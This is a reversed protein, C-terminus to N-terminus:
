DALGAAETALTTMGLRVATGLVVDVVHRLDANLQDDVVIGDVAHDVGDAVALDPDGFDVAEHADAGTFFAAVRHSVYPGYMVAVSVAGAFASRQVACHFSSYSSTMVVPRHVPHAPQTTVHGCSTM